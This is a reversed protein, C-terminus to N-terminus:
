TLDIEIHQNLLRQFRSELCRGEKEAIFSIEYGLWRQIIPSFCHILLHLDVKDNIQIGDEDFAHQTLSDGLLVVKPWVSTHKSASAAASSM